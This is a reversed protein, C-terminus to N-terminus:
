WTVAIPRGQITDNVIERSSLLPISYARAEGDFEVGIIFEGPSYEEDAEAVSYFKPDDISRIADKPLLTIIQYDAPLATMEDLTPTVEVTPTETNPIPTETLNLGEEGVGETPLVASPNSCAGLLMVVVLSVFLSIKIRTRNMDDNKWLVSM